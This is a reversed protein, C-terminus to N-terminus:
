GGVDSEHTRRKEREAWMADAYVYVESSLEKAFDELSMGMPVKVGPNSLLARMAAIAAQDTYEQKDSMATGRM